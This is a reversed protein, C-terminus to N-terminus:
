TIFHKNGVAYTTRRYPVTKVPTQRDVGPPRPTGRGPGALPPVWGPGAPLIGRDPTYGSQPTGQHPYGVEPVGATLDPQPTGQHPPVRVPPYGLPPGWRPYGWWVQSPPYGLPPNGGRTGGQWVQSPPYGSQPYGSLPTGWHPVGGQTGGM